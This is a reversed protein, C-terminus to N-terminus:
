PLRLSKDKPKENKLLRKRVVYMVAAYIGLCVALLVFFTVIVQSLAWPGSFFQIFESGTDELGLAFYM